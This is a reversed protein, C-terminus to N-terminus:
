IGPSRGVVITEDQQTTQEQLKTVDNGAGMSMLQDIASVDGNTQPEVPSASVPRTHKHQHETGAANEDPKTAADSNGNSKAEPKPLPPPPVADIGPRKPLFSSNIDGIGVFFDYPTVKVLNQSWHWVDGRDDIIVVMKTDVPLRSGIRLAM